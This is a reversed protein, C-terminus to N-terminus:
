SKIGIYIDITQNNLDESDNYYLEFDTSYLRDLNMKWIDQWAEGVAQQVHGKVTFKAYTGAQITHKKVQPISIENTSDKAIEKGCVFTYPATVDKEYNTYLGIAHANLTDKIMFPIGQEMFNQWLQGIDQISQGKENTTRVDLGVITKEELTIIEYKM